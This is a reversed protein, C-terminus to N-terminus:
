VSVKEDQLVDIGPLVKGELFELSAGGGTSIHSMTDSLGVKSIAAASDGGGIITIASSKSLTEAVSFTGKSFPELEFVGLPGNWIVTGAGDLATNIASITKPGVDLGMRNEPFADTDFIDIDSDVSFETACVHDLPLIVSTSSTESEKLFALAEDKFDDEVLSTGTQSGQAKLLTYTMAGGIILTDVLGLLHRLVGIKSSIKSGGIIAILPRKPSAIAGGIFELEKQILFGAYAPLYDCVGATSAHARHVVGFADQVFLDALEALKKSFAPDNETEENHFRLNELLVIDGMKMKSVNSAVDEGICDNLIPVETNLKESLREAVPKLSLKEVCEGKPRGMHSCLIVSAGNEILYQITPIAANIRTDDSIVGDNIPVNFDVRVLVKKGSLDSKSLDKISKKNFSM